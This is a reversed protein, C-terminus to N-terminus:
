SGVTLLLRFIIFNNNTLKEIILQIKINFIKEVKRLYDLATVLRKSAYALPIVTNQRWQTIEHVRIDFLSLFLPGECNPTLDM